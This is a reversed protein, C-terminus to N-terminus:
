RKKKALRETDSAIRSSTSSLPRDALGDGHCDLGAQRAEAEAVAPIRHGGDKHVPEAIRPQEAVSMEWM